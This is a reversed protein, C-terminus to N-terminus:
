KESCVLNEADEMEMSIAQLLQAREGIVLPMLAVAAVRMTNARRKRM